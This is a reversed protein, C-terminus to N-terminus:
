LSSVETLDQKRITVGKPEGYAFWVKLYMPKPTM